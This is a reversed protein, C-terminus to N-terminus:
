EVYYAKNAPIPDTGTYEFFGFTNSVLGMVHVKQTGSVLTSATTAASTGQLINGSVSPASANTATLTVSASEAMIVVACDAPIVSGNGVRYLAHDSDM